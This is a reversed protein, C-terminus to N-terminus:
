WLNGFDLIIVIFFSNINGSNSGIYSKHMLLPQIAGYSFFYQVNSSTKKINYNYYKFKNNKKCFIKFKVNYIKISFTFRLNVM